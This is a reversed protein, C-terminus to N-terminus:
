RNKRSIKWTNLYWTYTESWHPGKSVCIVLFHKEWFTSSQPMMCNGLDYIIKVYVPFEIDEGFIWQMIDPFWRLPTMWFHALDHDPSHAYCSALVENVMITGEM